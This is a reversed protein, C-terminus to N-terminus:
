NRFALPKSVLYLYDRFPQQTLIEAFRELAPLFRSRRWWAQHSLGLSDAVLMLILVLLLGRACGFLMGGLRNVGSLLSQDILSGIWYGAAKGLVLTALFLIAFAAVVRIGTHPIWAKLELSLAESCYLGIWLAAIWSFLSFTERVLGRMLGVLASVCVITLIAYDIWTM